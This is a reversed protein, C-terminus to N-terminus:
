RVRPPHRGLGAAALAEDVNRVTVIPGRWERHFTVQDPTLEGDDTKIEMLANGVVSSGVLLDPVGDGLQHLEVVSCHAALLVNVIEHHNADRKAIKRV